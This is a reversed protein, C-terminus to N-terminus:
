FSREMVHLALVGLNELHERAVRAMDARAKDSSDRIGSWDYGQCPIYGKEGYGDSQAYIARYLDSWEATKLNTIQYSHHCIKVVLDWDTTDVVQLVETKVTPM